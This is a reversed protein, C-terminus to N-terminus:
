VGPAFEPCIHEDHPLLPRPTVAYSHEGEVWHTIQTAASLEALWTAADSGEVVGCRMGFTTEQGFAAPDGDVPWPRVQPEIGAEPVDVDADANRVYLRFADPEYAAWTEDAWASAPLWQDLSSLRANLQSLAQHAAIEDAAVGPPPNGGGDLLGLAYVSVIVERGDAHLTFVTAPADAVVAQAGNLNLDSIFLQTAAVEALVTQIGEGTLTRVQLPPLAPGPFIAPVAGQTIVRGDGLLVFQPMSSVAFEVPVFGGASEVSLVLDDGTPHEIGSGDGPTVPPGGPATSCAALLLTLATLLAPTRNM